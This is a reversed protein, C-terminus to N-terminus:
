KKITFTQYPIDIKEKDFAEKIQELLNHKLSLYDKSKCWVRITFIIASDGLESVRIFSEREENEIVLDGQGGIVKSVIDKVKQIDSDYGVGINLDVRRVRQRSYNILINSTLNSNPIIVVKNDITLLTTNFIEIRHVTGTFGNVEIYEGVKIPKLTLILIGSAFNSMSGQLALGVAFGAAGIAAVISTTHIGAISVAMLIVAIKYVIRFLSQAFKELSEDYDHTDFFTTLWKDIFSQFKFGLVLISIAFFLKPIYLVLSETLKSVAPIIIELM